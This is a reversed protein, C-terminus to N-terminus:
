SWTPPERVAEVWDVLRMLLFPIATGSSDQGLSHLVEARIYGSRHASMLALLILDDPGRAKLKKVSPKIGYWDEVHAWATRLAEDLAPLQELPLREFLNRIASRAETQVDDNSAFAYM